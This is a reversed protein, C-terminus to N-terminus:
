RTLWVTVTVFTALMVPAVSARQFEAGTVVALLLTLILADPSALPEYLTYADSSLPLREAALVAVIVISEVDGEMEMPTEGEDTVDDVAWVDVTVKVTFSDTVVKVALSTVTVYPVRVPKEPEPAEYVAVKVGDRELPPVDTIVIAAPLTVSAAPLELEVAVADMEILAVL